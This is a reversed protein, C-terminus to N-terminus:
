GSASSDPRTAPEIVADIGKLELIHNFYPVGFEILKEVADRVGRRIDEEPVVPAPAFIEKEWDDGMMPRPALDWWVDETTWLRGLRVQTETTEPREGKEPDNAGTYPFRGSLTWGIEVTFSERYPDVYLTVYLLIAKDISAGYCRTGPPLTRKVEKWSPFREFLQKAFEKKLAKATKSTM